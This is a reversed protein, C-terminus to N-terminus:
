AAKKSKKTSCRGRGGTYSKIRVDNFRQESHIPIVDCIDDDGSQERELVTDFVEKLIAIARSKVRSIHCRCYNLERAIDVLAEDDVFSRKVVEKELEDLHVCAMALIRSLERKQLATEPSQKDVLMGELFAIEGSGQDGLSDLALEPTVHLAKQHHVISTIEKILLGRLHYFLFTKFSTKMAPNFRYAAECLAAGTISRIEDHPMRVRWKNLLKWALRNGVDQHEVVLEQQELISLYPANSSAQELAEKKRKSTKSPKNALATQVLKKAKGM